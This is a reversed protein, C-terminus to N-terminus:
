QIDFNAYYLSLVDAVMTKWFQCPIIQRIEEVELIGVKWTDFLQGGTLILLIYESFVSKLICFSVNQWM